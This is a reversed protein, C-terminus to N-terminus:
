DANINVAVNEDSTIYPAELMEDFPLPKKAKFSLSLNGPKHLFARLTTEVKLSFAKNKLSKINNPLDKLIDGVIVGTTIGNQDAEKRIYREIVSDNAFTVKLSKFKWLNSFMLFPMTQLEFLEKKGPAVAEGSLIIKGVEPVNAEIQEIKLIPKPGNKWKLAIDISGTIKQYGLAGMWKKMLKTGKSAELVADKLHIKIFYNPKEHKLESTLSGIPFTFIKSKKGEQHDPIQVSIGRLAMKKYTTPLIQDYFGLINKKSRSILVESFKGESIMFSENAINVKLGSVTLSEAKIAGKKGLAPKKFLLSKIKIHDENNRDKKIKFRLEEVLVGETTTHASRYTASEAGRAKAIAIVQKAIKEASLRAAHAEITQLILFIMFTFSINIIYTQIVHRIFHIKQM